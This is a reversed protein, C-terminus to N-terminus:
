KKQFHSRLLWTQLTLQKTPTGTRETPPRPKGCSLPTTAAESEVAGGNGSHSNIELGLLEVNGKNGSLDGMQQRISNGM